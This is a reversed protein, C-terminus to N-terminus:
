GVHGLRRLEGLQLDEIRARVEAPLRERWAEDQNPYRLRRLEEAWGADEALGAFAAVRQVTAVPQRVLQEYRVELRQGPPVAALGAALAPRLAGLPRWGGRALPAAHRRVV